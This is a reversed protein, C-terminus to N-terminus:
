VFPRANCYCRFICLVFSDIPTIKNLFLNKSVENKLNGIKLPVKADLIQDNVKMLFLM